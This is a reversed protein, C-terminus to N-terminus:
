TRGTSCRRTCRSAPRRGGRRAVARRAREGRDAGAGTGARRRHGARRGTAALEHSSPRKRVDRRREGAARHGLRRLHQAGGVLPLGFAAVDQAIRERACAQPAAPQWPRRRPDARGGRARRVRRTGYPPCRFGFHVRVLPVKDPVTERIEAGIIAACSRTSSRSSSTRTPPSRGSSARRPPSRRKRTSTASSRCCRTTRRTGPRSSRSSTTSAHGRQPGGDLRDAHPPVPAGAPFVAAM